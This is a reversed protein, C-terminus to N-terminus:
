PAEDVNRSINGRLREAAQDRADAYAEFDFADLDIEQIPEFARPLGDWGVQDIGWFFEVLYGDPDRAYFRPQNGPGGKRCNVIPVGRDRMEALKALLDAPTAMEFAIHHLGLVPTAPDAGDDAVLGDKLRFLALQHHTADCRMFAAAAVTVGHGVGEEPYEFRETLRMGLVDTYFAVSADLDRVTLGIHGLKMVRVRV